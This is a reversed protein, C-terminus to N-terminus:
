CPNANLDQRLTAVKANSAQRTAPEAFFIPHSAMIVSCFLLKTSRDASTDHLPKPTSMM